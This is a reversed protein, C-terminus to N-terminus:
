KIAIRSQGCLSRPGAPGLVSSSSHILIQPVFFTTHVEVIVGDLALLGCIFAGRSEPCHPGSQSCWPLCGGQHRFGQGFEFSETAEHGSGFVRAAGDADLPRAPLPVVGVTRAKGGEGVAESIDVLLAICDWAPCRVLDEGPLAQGAVAEGLVGLPQRVFPEVHDGFSEHIEVADHHLLVVDRPGHVGVLDLGLIPVLAPPKPAHRPFPEPPHIRAKHNPQPHHIPVHPPRQPRHRRPLNKPPRRTPTPIPPPNTTPLPNLNTPLYTHLYSPPEQGQGQGQFSAYTTEM